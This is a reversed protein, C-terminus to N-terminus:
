SSVSSSLSDNSSESPIDEIPSIEATAKAFTPINKRTAIIQNYREELTVLVGQGLQTFQPGDGEEAAKHANELRIKVSAVDRDIATAYQKLQDYQALLKQRMQDKEAKQSRLALRTTKPSVFLKAQNKLQAHYDTQRKHIFTFTRGVKPAAKKFKKAPKTDGNESTADRKEKPKAKAKKPRKKYGKILTARMEEQIEEKVKKTISASGLVVDFSKVDKLYATFRNIFCTHGLFTEKGYRGKITLGLHAIPLKSLQRFLLEWSLTSFEYYPFEIHVSTVLDHQGPKLFFGLYNLGWLATKFNLTNLTLPLNAAEKYVQRCTRLLATHITGRHYQSNRRNGDQLFAFSYIKERLEGALKLFPFVGKRIFPPGDEEEFKRVGAEFRVGIEEYFDDHCECTCDEDMCEEHADEDYDLDMAMPESQAM